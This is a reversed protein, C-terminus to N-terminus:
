EVLPHLGELSRVVNSDSSCLELLIELVPGRLDLSDKEIWRLVDRGRLDEVHEHGNGLEAADLCGPKQVLAPDALRLRDTPEGLPLARLEHRQEVPLVVMVGTRTGLAGTNTM